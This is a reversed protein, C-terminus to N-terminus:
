KRVYKEVNKQKKKNRELLPSSDIKITSQMDSVSIFKLILGPCELVIISM